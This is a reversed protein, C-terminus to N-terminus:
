MNFWMQCRQYFNFHYSDAARILGGGLKKLKKVGGEGVGWAAISGSPSPSRRCVNDRCLYFNTHKHIRGRTASIDSLFRWFAFIGWQSGYWWIRNQYKHHQPQGPSRPLCSHYSDAPMTVFIENGRKGGGEGPPRWGGFPSFVCGSGSYARMCFTGQISGSTTSFNNVFFAFLFVCYFLYRARRELLRIAPLLVLINLMDLLSLLARDNYLEASCHLATSKMASLLLWHFRHSDKVCSDRSSRPLCDSSRRHESRRVSLRRFLRCLCM